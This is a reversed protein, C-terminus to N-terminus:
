IIGSIAAAAERDMEPTVHSYTDMTVAFSSHGLRHQIIKFHVGAVVLMTAHTHRLSHFTFGELGIRHCYISFKKSVYNQTLPREAKGDRPFVLTSARWGNKLRMKECCAKQLHLVELTGEDITITRRSSATKLNPSIVEHGDKRIVSQNVSITRRKFDVNAWSLGQLEGRRMGTALAVRVLRGYMEDDISSLLLHVQDKNLASVPTREIRPRKVHDLPNNIMAGDEVAQKLAERTLTHVYVVTRASLGADLLQQWYSRFMSPTLQTLVVHGIQAGAIHKRLTLKYSTYTQPSVDRKIEEVWAMCWEGLTFNEMSLPAKEMAEVYAKKKAIAEAKTRGYFHRRKGDMQATVEYLNSNKRKPM